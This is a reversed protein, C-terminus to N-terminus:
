NSTRSLRSGDDAGISKAVFCDGIGRALIFTLAGREVKKDQRMAEVIDDAGVPWDQRCRRHAVPLGAARLHAEVRTATPARACGWGAPSGSRPPWASRSAKAMCWGRETTANLRELAHGFTHGLNLLARDGREFEDRAVIAAKARCSTAVAHVRAGGRRRLRGSSEGGALRFVGRRRDPWIQRGRRLRRSVRAAAADASRRHRRAGPTAPSIRRDPEQWARLQHRDQRRRIFQGPRAPEDAIQVFRMGRRVTAAAFGALDGIVGGGLAIVLDGRELRAAIIADCVGAFTSFSKSAEGPAVVIARIRIGAEDLSKELAPLHIGPSMPTPSSPAPPARRLHAFRAGAEALLGPGILIDYARAGLEVEVKASRPRSPVGSKLKGQTPPPKLCLVELPVM